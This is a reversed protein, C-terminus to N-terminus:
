NCTYSNTYKTYFPFTGGGWYLQLTKSTNDYDFAIDHGIVSGGRRETIFDVSIDPGGRKLNWGLDLGGCLGAEIIRDRLFAMNSKRTASSVGAKRYSAYKASVCAVIADGDNSACSGGNGGTGGGGGGGGGGGDGGDGPDPDPAPASSSKFYGTGSWGSTVIGDSARVRWYINADYPLPTAATFNSQAGGDEGFTWVAFVATFSENTSVQLTYNVGGVHGARSSNNIKFEPQSSSVKTGGVPSVLSPANLASPTIISFRMPASYPGVNAGDQARARWFYTHDATLRDGLQVSTRGNGGPAIGEKSFVKSTFNADSAVEVTYTLPRQGTTGANEILLTLPQKDNGIQSDALPELPKPATIEVGPIPGAVSPSLPNSSKSTECAAALLPLVALVGVARAHRVDM